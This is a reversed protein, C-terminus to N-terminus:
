VCRLNVPLLALHKPEGMYVLDVVVRGSGDTRLESVRGVYENFHPAKGLGVIRVRDGCALEPEREPEPAPEPEREREREPEPEPEPVPEPAPVPVPVPAAPAAVRTPAQKATHVSGSAALSRLEEIEQKLRGCEEYDERASSLECRCDPTFGRGRQATARSFCSLAALERRSRLHRRRRWILSSRRLM